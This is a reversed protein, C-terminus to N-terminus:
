DRLARRMSDTLPRLLYDLAPRREGLVFVEAPMGAALPVGQAAEGAGELEARALFFANGRADTQRDASVYLLRGEVLPAERQRFASLRVRVRQGVRVQEIESPAIQAEVVLRDDAPVLDLVPQGGAISSGPTFFRIDTVTGAEPAAVERRALLDLAARLREGADAALAQADGLDRAVESARDLRIRAMELEAQAIAERTEAEKAAHQGLNGVLEAEARQLELARTRPAFGRALLQMVGSLEERTTRLRTETAAHQARSAAIQEQLQAVRREQVALAGEFAARRAAFLRGEAEVLAATAPDAAAAAALSAPVVVERAERQEAALRAVRMAATRSQTRAQNAAAEAQTTDLRLLVQGAAVPTGERVLLERLIGPELLTVTKRKGEAVLAGQAIVARELPTTAAWLLMGGVGLGLVLAAALALRGLPPPPFAADLEAEMTDTATTM